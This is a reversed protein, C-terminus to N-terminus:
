PVAFRLFKRLNDSTWAKGTLNLHGAANLSAAIERYSAGLGRLELGHAAAAAARNAKAGQWQKQRRRWARFHAHPDFLVGDLDIPEASVPEYDIAATDLWARMPAHNRWGQASAFDVVLLVAKQALCLKRAKDLPERVLDSGRDPALELFVQEHILRYGQENAHARVLDRQYRITRSTAAARDVDVPLATFDAWAVPLTWYFGVANRVM